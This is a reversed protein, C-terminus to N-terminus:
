IYEVHETCKIDSATHHRCSADLVKYQNYAATVHMRPYKPKLGPM